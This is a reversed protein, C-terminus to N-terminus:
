ACYIKAGVAKVQQDDALNGSLDSDDGPYLALDAEGGPQVAIVVQAAIRHLPAKVADPEKGLLQLVNGGLVDPYDASRRQAKRGVPVIKDLLGLPDELM